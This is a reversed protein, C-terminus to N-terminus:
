KNKSHDLRAQKIAAKNKYMQADALKIVDGLSQTNTPTYVAVGLAISPNEFNPVKKMNAEAVSSKLSEFLEEWKEFIEGTIILAFEDGGIRFIECPFISRVLNYSNIIYKDGKDHGYYDNVYKLDNLDLMVVAFSIDKNTDMKEKLDKLCIDYASRNSAGTLADKLAFDITSQLRKSLKVSKFYENSILGCYFLGIIMVVVTSMVMDSSFDNVYSGLNQIDIFAVSYWGNSLRQSFLWYENGQLNITQSHVSYDTNSTVYQYVEYMPGDPDAYNLFQQSPDSSHAVVTGIESMIFGYGNLKKEENISVPVYLDEMMTQLDDMTIDMGIANVGDSLLKSASIDIQEPNYVDKYPEGFVVQGKGRLCEQYWKKELPIYEEVLESATHSGHLLSGNVIAFVGKFESGIVKEYVEKNYINSINRILQEVDENGVNDQLLLLELAESSTILVDTLRIMFTDITRENQSFSNICLEFIEKQADKNSKQLNYFMVGFVLVLSAIMLVFIVIVRGKYSNKPKKGILTTSRNDEKAM